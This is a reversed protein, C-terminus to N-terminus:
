ERSFMLKQELKFGKYVFLALNRLTEPKQSSMIKVFKDHNQCHRDSNLFILPKRRIEEYLPCEFLFHYENEICNMDCYICRRDAFDTGRHRGGEVMLKHNSTRFKTLQKRIFFNNLTYLYKEPYLLPKFERYTSLKPSSDIESNWTQKAIDTLRLVVSIMFLEEDGIGQTIWVLGFADSFLLKKLNTVFGRKYIADFGTQMKYCTQLLSGQQSILLKLWYKVFRKNYKIHLPLRGCDGLM